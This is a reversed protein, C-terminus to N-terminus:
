LMEVIPDRPDTSTVFSTIQDIIKGKALSKPFRVKEGYPHAAWHATLDAKTFSALFAKLAATDKNSDHFFTLPKFPRTSAPAPPTSPAPRLAAQTPERGLFDLLSRPDAELRDAVLRLIHALQRAERTQM